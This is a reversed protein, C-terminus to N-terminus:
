IKIGAILEYNEPLILSINKLVNHLVSPKLIAVPVKGVLTNQIAMNLEDIQITLQLLSFEMQRVLGILSSHDQYTVNFQWFDNALRTYRSHLHVM